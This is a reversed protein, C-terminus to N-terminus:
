VVSKRDPLEQEYAYKMIKAIEETTRVKILVDPYESIGGLEDHSYDEPIEERVWMRQPPVIQRLYSLQSGQLTIVNRRKTKDM